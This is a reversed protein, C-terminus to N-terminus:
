ENRIEQLTLLRPLDAPFNLCAFEGFLKSAAEDYAMAAEKKNAFRGLFILKQNQKIASQWRKTVRDWHVGKYESTKKQIRRNMQNQSHTCFRLNCKRNDLGNHNIHDIEQGKQAKMILRHMLITTSKKNVQSNARAYSANPCELVTWNYGSIKNDDEEDIIAFKGKTLPILRSQGNDAQTSSCVQPRPAAGLIKSEIVPQNLANAM